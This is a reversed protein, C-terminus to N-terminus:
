RYTIAHISMAKAPALAAQGKPLKDPTTVINRTHRSVPKKRRSVLRHHQRLMTAMCPIHPIQSDLLLLMPLGTPPCGAIVLLTSLQSRGASLVVPQRSAGLGHLLLRQAVEGLRHATEEAPGMAARRPSFDSHVLSKPLDTDLRLMHLTQVAPQTADPHGFDSPHAKATRPRDWRPNLGVPDRKIAGPAPMDCEGVNRVRDRTRTFGARHTDVTAHHHRRRQRGTFQQVGGSQHRTLRLPQLHQLLAQHAGLATRVTSSARLARDRLKPGTLGVTALVPDFLGGCIDRAAEVCDADFGEIHASHGARRASGDLLGTHPDGLLAAEIPGDGSASPTQERRPRLVFRKTPDLLDRSRVRRLSAGHAPMDRGFVALALRDEFAFRAIRPRAVGVHVSCTVDGGSPRHCYPSVEACAPRRVTFRM